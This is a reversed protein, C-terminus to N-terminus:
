ASRRDVLKLNRGRGSGKIAPLDLVDIQDFKALVEPVWGYDYRANSQAAKKELQSRVFERLAAIREERGAIARFTQVQENNLSGITKAGPETRHKLLAQLGKQRDGDRLKQFTVYRETRPVAPLASKPVTSSRKKPVAFNSKAPVTFNSGPPVAATGSVPNKATGSQGSNVTGGGNALNNSDFPDVQEGTKGTAPVAATGPFSANATGSQAGNATGGRQSTATGPVTGPQTGTKRRGFIRESWSQSRQGSGGGSPSPTSSQYRLHYNKIAVKALGMVSYLYVLLTLGAMTRSVWTCILIISDPDILRAKESSQRLKTLDTLTPAPGCQKEAELRALPGPHQQAQTRCREHDKLQQAYITDAGTRAGTDATKQDNAISLLSAAIIWIVVNVGTILTIRKDAKFAALGFEGNPSKTFPLSYLSFFCYLLILATSAYKLAEVPLLTWSLYLDIVSCVLATVFLIIRMRRHHEESVPHWETATPATPMVPENKRGFM